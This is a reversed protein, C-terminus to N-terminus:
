RCFWFRFVRLVVFCVFGSGRRVCGLVVCFVVYVVDFVCVFLCLVFRVANCVAAILVVFCVILFSM